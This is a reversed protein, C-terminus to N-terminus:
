YRRKRGLCQCEVRETKAYFSTFCKKMQTM